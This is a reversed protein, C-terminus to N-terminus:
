VKQCCNGNMVSGQVPVYPGTVTDEWYVEVVVTCDVQVRVTEFPFSQEPADPLPVYPVPTYSVTAPVHVQPEVKTMHVVLALPVQLQSM